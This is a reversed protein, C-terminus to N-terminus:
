INDKLLAGFTRSRIEAIFKANARWFIKVLLAAVGTNRSITDTITELTKTPILCDGYGSISGELQGTQVRSVPFKRMIGFQVLMEYPIDGIEIDDFCFKCSIVLLLAPVCQTVKKRILLTIGDANLSITAKLKGGIWLNHQQGRSLADIGEGIREPSVLLASGLAEFAM